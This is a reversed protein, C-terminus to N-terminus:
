FKIERILNNGTDVVFIRGYQDVVVGQPNNFTATNLAGNDGGALGTGAVTTVTGDPAIKRILNNNSDGVYVNGSIDVTIGAPGNFSAATGVGNAAGASGSGALTTVVGQPTIKRILNNGEDAVYVNGGADVALAQPQNFSAATGAGNTAGRNGSGALTTVVGKPTIKRIMSNGNDAVYVNGAGDTAVGTPVNFLAATGTGNVFGASGNGAFTTVVGQPSIERIASNAMDAIFVNGSSDAATSTPSNFTVSGKTNSFGVNGNGAIVNVVGQPSIIRIMNNQKDAVFLFGDINMGIGTPYNFSAQAKTGDASGQAGSGVFTIVSPPIVPIIPTTTIESKKSCATIFLLAVLFYTFSIKM